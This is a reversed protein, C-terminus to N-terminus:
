RGACPDLDDIATTTDRMRGGNLKRRSGLVIWSSVTDLALYRVGPDRLLQIKMQAKM